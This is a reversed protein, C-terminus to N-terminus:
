EDRSIISNWTLDVANWTKKMDEKASVSNFAAVQGNMPSNIEQSTLYIASEATVLRGPRSYDIVLKHQFESTPEHGSKYYNLMCKIDDFKYVKGKRTVLEAGFHRDVITMKCYHCADTGFRIPVPETSCAVFLLGVLLGTSYMVLKM